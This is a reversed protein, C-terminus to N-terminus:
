TNPKMQSFLTVGIVALPDPGKTPWGSLVGLKMAENWAQIVSSDTTMRPSPSILWNCSRVRGWHDSFRWLRVGDTVYQSGSDSSFNLGYMKVLKAWQLVATDPQAILQFQAKTAIHFNDKTIAHAPVWAGRAAKMAGM